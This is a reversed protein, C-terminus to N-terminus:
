REGERQARGGGGGGEGCVRERELLFFYSSFFFFFSLFLFQASQGWAGEVLLGKPDHFTCRM